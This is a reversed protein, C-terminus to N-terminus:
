FKWSTRNFIQFTKKNFISVLDHSSNLLKKALFQELFKLYIIIKIWVNIFM